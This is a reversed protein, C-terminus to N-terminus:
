FLARTLDSREQKVAGGKGRAKKSGVSGVSAQSKGLLGPGGEIGGHSRSPSDPGGIGISDAQLRSVMGPPPAPGKKFTAPAKMQLPTGRDRLGPNSDGGTLQRINQQQVASPKSPYRTEREAASSSKSPVAQGGLEQSGGSTSGGGGFGGVEGQSPGIRRGGELPDVDKYKERLMSLPLADVSGEGGLGLEQSDENEFENERAVVLSAEAGASQSSGRSLFAARVQRKPDDPLDPGVRVTEGMRMRVGPQVAPESGVLSTALSNTATFYSSEVDRAGVIRTKKGKKGKAASAGDSVPRAGEEVKNSITLDLPVSFPQLKEAKLPQIYIPKGSADFTFKKGKSEKAIREVELQLNRFEDEDDEELVVSPKQKHKMLKGFMDSTKNLMSFDDGDDDLDFIEPGDLSDLKSLGGTHGAGGAHAVARAVPYLLHEPHCVM